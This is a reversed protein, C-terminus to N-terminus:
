LYTINGTLTQYSNYFFLVQHSSQSLSRCLTTLPSTCTVINLLTTYTSRVSFFNQIFSSGFLETPSQSASFSFCKCCGETLPRGLSESPWPPQFLSFVLFAIPFWSIYPRTAWALIKINSPTFHPVVAFKSWLTSKNWLVERAASHLLSMFPCSNPPQKMLRLLLYHHGPGSNWPHQSMTQNQICKAPLVLLVEKKPQSHSACSLSTLSPERVSHFLPTATSKLLNLTSCSEQQPHWDPSSAPMESWPLPCYPLKM